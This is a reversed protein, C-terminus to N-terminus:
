ATVALARAAIADLVDVREAPVEVDLHIREDDVREIAFGFFSCCQTERAVLDRLGAEMATTAGGLTLRLRTPAVRDMGSLATAFLADFEAVRLPQEATPLTCAEPPVWTM